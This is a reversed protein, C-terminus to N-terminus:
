GTRSWKDRQTEWSGRGPQATPTGCGAAKGEAAWEEVVTVVGVRATVVEVMTEEKAGEETVGEGRGVETAASEEAKVVEEMVEGGEEGTELAEERVVAVQMAAGAAEEKQAVGREAVVVEAEM